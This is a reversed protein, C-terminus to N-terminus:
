RPMVTPVVGSLLESGSVDQSVFSNKMFSSSSASSSSPTMVKGPDAVLYETIKTDPEPIMSWINELERVVAGMSPRADTADQCCKLALNLFKEVCESPYFGMREDVMSFIEGSRYANNAERVINKGHSIPHMATLLELFVVGLSYVDSKDTLKQTLFYEPDLYGPTGKVVTSVHAPAVGELEPLVALRSLGFDAVKATFKSDLLINSAKIDRHFIPPNAESHLYHIGRASGLAMGVRMAFNLPLKGKGSLYDRLTGNPMFEYVLMQEGEEDCYGILSVLNRHHLRSLLEIETLFENEGQLSGEQARKIAVVTGDALIGRYVKGYGGQGVESSSIFNNTALAMEGYTFDKVGDIRMSIRTSPRRKSSAHKKQFYLRMILFAIITSLTVSVAIAGLIIGALAGKSIGSPSSSPFEDGYSDTFNLLEFPGFVASDPITWGGFMERIRIVESRNFLRVSDNVYSPFFKLYMRLRPGKQWAVSDIGLQSLNLDLGSTLYDKFNDVYPLFDSFGPSKLRYGVLLPAVCLCSTVPSAPAYEYHPPCSQSPCENIKSSNLINSGFDEEHSGCFQVLNNNSCVPNGQLGITVNPPVLFNGSINSFMNNEFDLFLREYSNLTRNLWIISPVSGSMSNNAVSLKQLRPLSLFTSPITGNLHNNSLDITTINDSLPGTPISGNLQNLSLDIYAISPLNSWDPIPGQVSCNRLSMILIKPTESLEPPLLGSLNNNDLLLHVLNPLQSLEPPIQGSLSNNNMHFHKTKTLNAFSVPIPGSIHNQDIQIRDLNSLYGLEDPLSGTLQNGNLLLLQLTTINGIEKPITGTINNWMFDLIELYSLRGLEPSLSGSLNMNLLLRPIVTSVVEYLDSGSVDQSILPSKMSSTSSSSPTMVKGPYEAIFSETTKTYPEPMMFWINELERVVEAMSPRAETVDQCCKLALNMFRVLCESPYSGMNEDVVSFIMGSRYAINVERVINKGHSIPHMATLLELFVVGLSYVDSKDTLKHTLFYEPDLYGPTGKVVTSVHSPMAGELEPLPALRSLGFDAVKVTFKSDLLINSAKIDRHFIPPNAESHLYHIGRASGLAIRVRMAFTLSSKCTGSLHDRLTGNPMFEYVLMQEDEEDCYGILKVLNRHHLRSLLEIETLFENEGQLSGEQARKIAVVTGDALIGRYVKGYGGQGVISSSNFDSTALAMEGYTFDKVDDIRISIRSSPRRKSSAHSKLFHLRLILLFVFASITLSVAITGQIIGAMAGKSIGSPSSLPFEDRYPDSLTFNLLEFPGFVKSDPITWGSFMERIWLVESRKFLRVNDNVYSPFIKLYMRLRPGKQWAVSDIELQSLNLRLGSTLHQKFPIVYPLFDSFGPSKLRYGILLPAACFCSIVPSAPAYEYPPPCSQSPCGNIKTINLANSRFDEEHSGCLQVLNNNSCVPNGQLGITVNPPVLFSGSIISFMNNEFDLFLRDSSNLTRNLWIISPISGSLSNNAVSLKQLHPLSSFTSPITGNLNNNSLDITTINGSLPGRPISGNLQNVSLDIYAINPMNSWNPIQGQVSCNRLSLIRLEPIESLEPPLYGSLNNNDLLLHLLNKLQSLKPPIQGSLSNNNMHFHKAKKLNAFSLPIPGSIQNQDVQIRDLNSLYGLEDPLSGTLQNGNLLGWVEPPFGLGSFIPAEVKDDPCPSLLELTTINGIEKPITGTINNWMFDLIKMHSLRGLEPSLSGSLNRALFLKHQKRNKSTIPLVAIRSRPDTAYCMCCIRAPVVVPRSCVGGFSSSRWVRHCRPPTSIANRCHTPPGGVAERRVRSKRRWSKVGGM